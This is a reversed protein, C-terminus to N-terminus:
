FWWQSKKSKSEIYTWLSRESLSWLISPFCNMTFVCWYFLKGKRIEKDVVLGGQSINQYMVWFVTMSDQLIKKSWWKQCFQVNKINLIIM